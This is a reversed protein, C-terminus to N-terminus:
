CAHVYVSNVKSADPASPVLSVLSSDSEAPRVIRLVEELALEKEAHVFVKAEMAGWTCIGPTIGPTVYM